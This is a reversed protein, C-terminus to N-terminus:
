WHKCDDRTLLHLIVHIFHDSPLYCYMHPYDVRSKSQHRSCQGGGVRIQNKRASSYMDKEYHWEEVARRHHFHPGPIGRSRPLRLRPADASPNPEVRRAGHRLSGFWWVPLAPFVSVWQMTHRPAMQLLWPSSHLDKELLRHSFRVGPLMELKMLVLESCIRGLMVEFNLFCSCRCFRIRESLVRVCNKKYYIHNIELM